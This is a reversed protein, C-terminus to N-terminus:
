FRFVYTSLLNPTSYKRMGYTKLPLVIFKQGNNVYDKIREWFIEYPSRLIFRTKIKTYIKLEKVYIEKTTQSNGHIETEHSNIKSELDMLRLSLHLINYVAVGKNYYQNTALVYTRIM